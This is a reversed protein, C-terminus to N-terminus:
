CSLLPWIVKGPNTQINRNGNSQELTDKNASGDENDEILNVLDNYDIKEELVLEARWLIAGSLFTANLDFSVFLEGDGSLM